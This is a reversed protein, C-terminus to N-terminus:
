GLMQLWQIEKILSDFFFLYNCFAASNHIYGASSPANTKIHPTLFCM